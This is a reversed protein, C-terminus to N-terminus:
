LQQAITQQSIGKNIFNLDEKKHETNLETLKKWESVM